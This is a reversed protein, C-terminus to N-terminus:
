LLLTLLPLYLLHLAFIGEDAVGEGGAEVAELLQACVVADRLRTILKFLVQILAYHATTRQSLRDPKM